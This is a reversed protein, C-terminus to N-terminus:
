FEEPFYEERDKWAQRFEALAIDYKKSVKNLQIKIQEISEDKAQKQKRPLYMREENYYKTIIEKLQRKEEWLKLELNQTEQVRDDLEYAKPHETYFKIKRKNRFYNKIGYYIYCIFYVVVLLIGFGFLVIVVAINENIM